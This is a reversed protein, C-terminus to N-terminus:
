QYPLFLFYLSQMIESFRQKNELEAINDPIEANHLLFTNEVPIALQHYRKEFWDREQKCGEDIRYQWSSIKTMGIADRSSNIDFTLTGICYAKAAELGRFTLRLPLRRQGSIDDFWRAHYLIYTGRPIQWAFYGTDSVGLVGDVKDEVRFYLPWINWGYNNRYNSREEGNNIWRIRGFVVIDDNLEAATLSTPSTQITGIPDLMTM